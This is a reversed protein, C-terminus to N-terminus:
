LLEMVMQHWPLWFVSNYVRWLCPFGFGQTKLDGSFDLFFLGIEGNRRRCLFMHSHILTVTVAHCALWIVTVGQLYYNCTLPYDPDWPWARSEPTNGEWLRDRFFIKAIHAMAKEEGGLFRFRYGWDTMWVLSELLSLLSCSEVTHKM